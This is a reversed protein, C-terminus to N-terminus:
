QTAESSSPSNTGSEDSQSSSYKKEASELAKKGLQTVRLAHEFIEDVEAFTLKGDILKFAADLDEFAKSGDEKCLAVAIVLAPPLRRVGEGQLQAQIQLLNWREAGSIQRMYITGLRTKTEIKEIDFQLANLRETIDLHAGNTPM